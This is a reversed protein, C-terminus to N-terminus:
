NILVQLAGVDFVPASQWEYIQIARDMIYLEISCAMIPFPQGNM